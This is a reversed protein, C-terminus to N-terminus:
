ARRGKRFVTRVPGASGPSYRPDGLLTVKSHGEQQRQRHDGPRRGGHHRPQEGGHSRHDHRPERAGPVALRRATLATYPAPIQHAKATATTVLLTPPSPPSDGFSSPAEMARAAKMSSGPLSIGNATTARLAGSRARREAAAPQASSPYAAPSPKVTASSM